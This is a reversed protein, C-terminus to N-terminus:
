FKGEMIKWCFNKRKSMEKKLLKKFEQDTLIKTTLTEFIRIEKTKPNFNYIRFKRKRKSNNPM